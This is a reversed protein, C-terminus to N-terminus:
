HVAAVAAASCWFYARLFHSVQVLLFLRMVPSNCQQMRLQACELTGDATPLMAIAETARRCVLRDAYSQSIVIRCSQHIIISSYLGTKQRKNPM